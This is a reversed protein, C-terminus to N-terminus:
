AANSKASKAAEAAKSSESTQVDNVDVMDFTFEDVRVALMRKENYALLTTVEAENLDGAQQLKLVANEFSIYPVVPTSRLAKHVKSLLPM